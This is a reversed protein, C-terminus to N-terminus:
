NVIIQDSECGSCSPNQKGGSFKTVNQKLYSFLENESLEKDRNEDANMDGSDNLQFAAALFTTFLGNSINLDNKNNFFRYSYAVENNGSASFLTIKSKYEDPLRYSSARSVSRGENVKREVEKNIFNDNRDKPEGSFCADVFAFIKDVNELSYLEEYFWSQQVSQDKLYEGTPDADVPLFLGNGNEDLIGHGAYYVFLEVDDKGAIDSKLGRSGLKSQFESKTANDIMTTGNVGFVVRFYEQMLLADDRAGDVDSVSYSDNYDSNYIILAHKNGSLNTTKFASQYDEINEEDYTELNVEEYVGALLGESQNNEFYIDVNQSLVRNRLSEESYNFRLELGDGMALEEIGDVKNVSYMLFFEENDRPDLNELLIENGKALESRGSRERTIFDNDEPFEISLNKAPGNGINEVIFKFIVYDRIDIKKDVNQEMRPDTATESIFVNLKLNPSKFFDTGFGKTTAEDGKRTKDNVELTFTTQSPEINKDAKVKFEYIVDQGPEISSHNQSILIPTFNNDIIKSIDEKNRSEYSFNYNIGRAAVNGNNRVKFKLSIEEDGNIVQRQIRNESYVLPENIFEYSEQM